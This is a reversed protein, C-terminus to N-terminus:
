ILSIPVYDTRESNGALRLNMNFKM